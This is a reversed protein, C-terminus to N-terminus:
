FLESRHEPDAERVPAFSYRHEECPGHELLLEKHTPTSYGKHSKFGYQPYVDDLAEMRQDRIVKALISAGAISFSKQDGKVLCTERFGQSLLKRTLPLEGSFKPRRSIELVRTMLSLKGDILFAFEAANMQKSPSDSSQAKSSESEADDFIRALVKELARAMALCTAQLINVEDIEKANAFAQDCYQAEAQVSPLLSLRQGETLLKSDRLEKPVSEIPSNAAFVCAAASVPGALCGRGAEDFGVVYKANSQWYMKEAAFSPQFSKRAKTAKPAKTDKQAITGPAKTEKQPTTVRGRGKKAELKGQEM